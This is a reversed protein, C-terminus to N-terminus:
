NYIKLNPLQTLLSNTEVNEINVWLERLNNLKEIGKYSLFGSNFAYIIKLSKMGSIFEFDTPFDGGHYYSINLEEVQKLKNFFTFSGFENQSFDIKKLNEIYPITSYDRYKNFSLNLEKLKNLDKMFYYDKIISNSLDLYELTVLKSIPTYDLIDNRSISLSKLNILKSLPNIDDILTDFISLKTINLKLLWPLISNSFTNGSIGFSVLYNLKSFLAYHKEDFYLNNLKLHKLNNLELILNMPIIDIDYIHLGIVNNYEDILCSNLKELEELDSNEIISFKINCYTEIKKITEIDNM